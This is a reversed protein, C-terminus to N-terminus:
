RLPKTPDLADRRVVQESNDVAEPTEHRPPGPGLDKPRLDGVDHSRRRQLGPAIHDKVGDVTWKDSSVNRLAVFRREPEVALIVANRQHKAWQILMEDVPAYIKFNGLIRRAFRNTILYGFLGDMAQTQFFVGDTGPVERLLKYRLYGRRQFFAIDFEEPDPLRQLMARIELDTKTFYVDDEMVFMMPVRMRVCKRWLEYHSLACGLEGYTLLRKYRENCKTANYQVLRQGQDLKVYHVGMRNLAFTSNWQLQRGNIADFFEMSFSSRNMFERQIKRRPSNVMSIAYFPVYGLARDFFIKGDATRNFTLTHLVRSPPQHDDPLWHAPADADDEQWRFLSSSYSVVNRLGYRDADLEALVGFGYILVFGLVSLVTAVVVYVRHRPPGGHGHGLREGASPETTAVGVVSMM